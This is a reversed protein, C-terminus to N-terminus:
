QRVHKLVKYMIYTVVKNKVEEARENVYKEVESRVHNKLSGLFNQLDLLTLKSTEM